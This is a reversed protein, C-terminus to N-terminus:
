FEYSESEGSEDDSPSEEEDVSYDSEEESFPTEEPSEEPTEEITTESTTENDGIDANYEEDEFQLPSEESEPEEINSDEPDIQVTQVKTLEVANEEKAPETVAPSLSEGQPAPQELQTLM